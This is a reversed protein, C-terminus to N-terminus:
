SRLPASGQIKVINGCNKCGFSCGKGFCVESGGLGAAVVFDCKDCKVKWEGVFRGELEKKRFRKMVRKLIEKKDDACPKEKQFFGCLWSGERAIKLNARRVQKKEEESLHCQQSM